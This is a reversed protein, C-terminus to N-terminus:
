DQVQKQKRQYYPNLSNPLCIFCYTQIFYFNQNLFTKYKNLIILIIIYYSVTKLFEVTFGTTSGIGVSFCPNEQLFRSRIFMFQDKFENNITYCELYIVIACNICLVHLRM